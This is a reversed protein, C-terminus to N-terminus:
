DWIRFDAFQDLSAYWQRAPATSAAVAEAARRGMVLAHDINNHNFLGQRGTTILNPFGALFPWIAALTKEFGLAYIPYAWNRRLVFRSIIDRPEFLGTAALDHEVRAAIESDDLAWLPESGRATIECCLATRGEPALSSDFNKPECARTALPPTQPFYLWHDPGLRDKAAVLVVLLLSLYELQAFATRVSEEAGPLMAGLEPLPITSIVVDADLATQGSTQQVVVHLRHLSHSAASQGEAAQLATARSNLLIRGGRTRIRDALIECLQGIGRRVYGFERVPGAARRRGIRLARGFAAGLSQDPLRVRAIEASLTAPDARWVKRAYPEVVKRFAPGGFAARMADAFSIPQGETRRHAPPIGASSKYLRRVKAAAMGAAWRAVTAAGLVRLVEGVRLPYALWKGDLYIRSSRRVRLLRDGLLQPLLAQVEPIESHLRHPGLDTAIGDRVVTAALGGVTPEAEAVTVECGGLELLRDAAALGTVGAGLIVVRRSM